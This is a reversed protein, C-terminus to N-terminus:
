RSYIEEVVDEAEAVSSLFATTERIFKMDDSAWRKVCRSCNTFEQIDVIGTNDSHAVFVHAKRIPALCVATTAQGERVPSVTATCHIKTRKM